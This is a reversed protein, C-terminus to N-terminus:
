LQAWCLWPIRWSSPLTQPAGLSASSTSCCLWVGFDWVALPQPLGVASLEGGCCNGQEAVDQRFCLSGLALAVGFLVFSGCACGLSVAMLQWMRGMCVDAVVLARHGQRLRSHQSNGRELAEPM